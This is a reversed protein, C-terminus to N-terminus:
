CVKDKVVFDKRVVLALYEDDVPLYGQEYCFYYTNGAKTVYINTYFNFDFGLDLLHKRSVRAKGQPNLVALIKRNKKLTYNIRRVLNNTESNQRNNYTTRCQDCCFKKDSRGLIQIGCELCYKEM